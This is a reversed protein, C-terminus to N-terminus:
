LWEKPEGRWRKPDLMVRRLPSDRAVGLADLMPIVNELIPQVQAETGEPVLLPLRSARGVIACCLDVWALIEGPDVTGNFCRFELSGHRFLANPNLGFREWKTRSLVRAIAARSRAREM